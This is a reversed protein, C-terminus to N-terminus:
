SHLSLSLSVCVCVCLLSIHDRSVVCLCWGGKVSVVHARQVSGRQCLCVCVCVCLLACLVCCVPAAAAWSGWLLTQPDGCHFLTPFVVVCMLPPTVQGGKQSHNEAEQGGTGGGCVAAFGGGPLQAAHGRERRERERSARAGRVRMGQECGAPLTAGGGGFVGEAEHISGGKHVQTPLVVKHAGLVQQIGLIAGKVTIKFEAVHQQVPNASEKKRATSEVM